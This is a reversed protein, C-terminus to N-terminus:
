RAPLAFVRLQTQRGAFQAIAKIVRVNEDSGKADMIFLGKGDLADQLVSPWLISRTKGSGTKGVVHRHMTQQRPSLYVPSWRNGFITRRPTLGVFKQRAPKAGIAPWSSDIPRRAIEALLDVPYTPFRENADADFYTGALRTVIQNHWFLLLTRYALLGAVVVVVLSASSIAPHDLVWFRFHAYRRVTPAIATLRGTLSGISMRRVAVQLLIELGAVFLSLLILTSSLFRIRQQPRGTAKTDPM